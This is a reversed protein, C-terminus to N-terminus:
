LKFISLIRVYQPDCGVMEAVNKRVSHLVASADPLYNGETEITVSQNGWHTAGKGDSSWVEHHTIYQHRM